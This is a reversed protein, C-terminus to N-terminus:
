ISSSRFKEEVVDDIFSINEQHEKVAMQILEDDTIQDFDEHKIETLQSNISKKIEYLIQIMNEVQNLDDNEVEM